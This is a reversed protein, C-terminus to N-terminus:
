CEKINVDILDPTEKEYIRGSFAMHPLPYFTKEGALTRYLPDAIVADAKKIERIIDDEEPTKMDGPRLLEAESELPCLVRAHVGCEMEIAAALSASTVNEGIIVCGGDNDSGTEEALYAIRSEGTGASGRIVEALYESFEEGYPVGIVYPTGFRERLLKAAALGGSSVVLNVKADPLREIDDLTCGMALCTGNQMGHEAVWRQMAEVSGNVSFDLPTVGLFNVAPGDDPQPLRSYEPEGSAAAPTVAYARVIEEMAKSVGCTYDHMGNAYVPSCPIETRRSVIQAIATLDTGIMYPIPADVIAVFKPHLREATEVLDGIFKEDDGLIAEKESIASVYIMSDMDYWRPEDHTTYTSNCGSADHMVVMGGLEYLASCIGFVDSSYTSTLVTVQRM